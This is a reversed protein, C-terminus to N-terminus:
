LEDDDAEGTTDEIETDALKFSDAKDGPLRFRILREKKVLDNVTARIAKEGKRAQQQAAPLLDPMRITGAHYVITLVIDAIDVEETRTEVTFDLTSRQLELSLLPLAEEADRTKTWEALLVDAVKAHRDVSLCFSLWGTLATSGRVRDVGSERRVLPSRKRDHHAMVLACRHEAIIGDLIRTLRAMEDSRNEDWPHACRLPDIILVEPEHRRILAALAEGHEAVNLQILALSYRGKAEDSASAWIKALRRRIGRKSGEVALHLVRRPRPVPLRLFPSGEALCRGLRLLLNTKGVGTPGAIIGKGDIPLVAGDAGDGIVLDLAGDESNLWTDVSDATFVMGDAPKVGNRSALLAEAEPPYRAVSAAIRRVEADDLLPECRARNEVQLAALIAEQSAGRRRMSGALSTLQVNREGKALKSSLPDVNRREEAATLLTLLWAPLEAIHGARCGADWEYRGGNPHISPPLVVFGGAGKVDIGPGLATALRVGPNSFYYHAGGGGTLARLTEPLPGYEAELDRLTEDGGNRPDVDIVIRGSAAGTPMGINAEPRHRWAEGILTPDPTADYFGHSGRLPRKGSLQFVPVGHEAYAVAVEGLTPGGHLENATVVRRTREGDRLHKGTLELEDDVKTGDRLNRM